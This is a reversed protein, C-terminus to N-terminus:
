RRKRSKRAMEMLDRYTLAKRKKGDKGVIEYVPRGEFRRPDLIQNMPEYLMAGAPQRWAFLADPIKLGVTTKNEYGFRVPLMRLNRQDPDDEAGAPQRTPEPVSPPDIPISDFRFRRILHDSESIYFRAEATRKADGTDIMVVQVREGNVIEPAELRVARAQRELDRFPDAGSIAAYEIGAGPLILARLDRPARDRTYYGEAEDYVYFGKGDCLYRKRTARGLTPNYNEIEYLLRNPRRVVLKSRLPKTFGGPDGSYAAEIEVSKLSRYARVMRDLAQRAAPEVPEALGIARSPAISSVLLVISSIIGTSCVLTM